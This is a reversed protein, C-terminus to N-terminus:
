KFKHTKDLIVGFLVSGLMGCLVITL